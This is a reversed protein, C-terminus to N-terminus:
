PHKRAHSGAIRLSALLAPSLNRAPLAASVEAAHTEHFAKDFCAAIVAREAETRDEIWPTDEGGGKIRWRNKQKMTELWANVAEEGRETRVRSAFVEFPLNSFRERHLRR